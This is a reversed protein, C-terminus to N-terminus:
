DVKLLEARLFNPPFYIPLLSKTLHCYWSLVIEYAPKSILLSMAPFLSPFTVCTPNCIPLYPILEPKSFAKKKTVTTVVLLFLFLCVFFM